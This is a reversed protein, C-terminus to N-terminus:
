NRKRWFSQQQAQYQEWIDRVSQVRAGTAGSNGGGSGNLNAMVSMAPGSGGFSYIEKVLILLEKAPVPMHRPTGACLGDAQQTCYAMAPTGTRRKIFFPDVGQGMFEIEQEYNLAALLGAVGDAATVPPLGGRGVRSNNILTAAQALDGGSRILGEAWLLDNMQTTYIPDQGTGDEGPLGDYYSLYSYRIHAANSQHYSGRAAPFIANKSCAFDTGAKATAATEGYGLGGPGWTGDGARKDMVGWIGIGSWPCPNGAPSPWPDVQDTSLLHAVRTHVRETTIDNGWQKIYDIGDDRASNDIFFEWTFPAGSSVGQSAYQAVKAWDASGNEAGNRPFMAILEAEMTRIVQQIQANSYSKGSGVGMWGAETNWSKTGAAAYAQEFKSLASDRMEQRTNFSVTAIPTKSLDFNEDLAFGQDYLLAIGGFAMGQLMKAIAGNRTTLTNDSSCNPDFCTGLSIAKLVDNAASLVTYYGYWSSEVEPGGATETAAASNTWACRQPCDAGYSSYLRIAANNWSATYNDAMVPLSMIMYNERTGLWTRFAGGLLQALGAPDKFARQADPANPNPVNMDCGGAVFMAASLAAALSAQRLMRMQRKRNM